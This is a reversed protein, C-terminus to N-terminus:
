WDVTWVTDAPVHVWLGQGPSLLYTPGVLSQLYPSGPDAVEVMDAGTGWLANGVPMGATLTPYGVLNWGAYLPIQTPGSLVGFIPLDAPSTLHVWLAM